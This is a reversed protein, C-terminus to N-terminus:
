IFIFKRRIFHKNSLVVLLLAVKILSLHLPCTTLTSLCKYHTGMIHPCPLLLTTDMPHHQYLFPLHPHFTTPLILFCPHINPIHLLHQTTFHLLQHQFPLQLLIHCQLLGHQPQYQCTSLPPIAINRACQNQNLAVINENQNTMRDKMMYRNWPVIALPGNWKERKLLSWNLQHYQWTSVVRRRGHGWMMPVWWLHKDVKVTHGRCRLKIFTARSRTTRELLCKM